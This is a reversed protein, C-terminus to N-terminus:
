MNQGSCNDYWGDCGCNGYFDCASGTGCGSLALLAMMVFLRLMVVEMASVFWDIVLNVM